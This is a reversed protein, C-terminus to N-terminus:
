EWHDLRHKKILNSIQQYNKIKAKLDEPNQRQATIKKPDIKHNKGFCKSLQTDFVDDNLNAYDVSLCNQGQKLCRKMINYYFLSQRLAYTKYAEFDVVIPEWQVRTGPNNIIWQNTQRAIELSVYSELFNRILVIKFIQPNDVLPAILENNHNEFLRFGINEGQSLELLCNLYEFPQNKRDINRLISIDPVSKEFKASLGSQAPNFIEGHCLVGQIANLKQQLFNSGSRMMGLVVFLKKGEPTILKSTSENM